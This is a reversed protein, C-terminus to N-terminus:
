VRERQPYVAAAWVQELRRGGKVAVVRSARNPLPGDKAVGSGPHRGVAVVTVEARSPLNVARSLLDGAARESSSILVLNPSTSWEGGFPSAGAANAHAVFGALEDLLTTRHSTGRGSATETGDTAVLRVSVQQDLAMAIVSAAAECALELSIQTHAEARLDVAVTVLGGQPVEEQRVMVRDMRATSPWHIRRVDDGIQYERLAYFESGSPGTVPSTGTWREGALEPLPVLYRVRPHVILVRRSAGMQTRRFLGLPDSEVIVLPGLTYLGRDLSPLRYGGRLEQGPPLPAVAVVAWRVGEQFADHLTVTPGTRTGANRASVEVRAVGGPAIRVPSVEREVALYWRRRRLLIWIWAAGSALAAGTAAALALLEEIGVALGLAIMLLGAILLGWGRNTLGSSPLGPPDEESSSHSRM